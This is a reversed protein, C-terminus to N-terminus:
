GPTPTRPRHCQLVLIGTGALDFRQTCHHPKDVRLRDAELTLEPHLDALVRALGGNAFQEMRYTLDAAGVARLRSWVPAIAARWYRDLEQVVEPLHALASEVLSKPPQSGLPLKSM